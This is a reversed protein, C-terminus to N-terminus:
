AAGLFVEVATEVLQQVHGDDGERTRGLLDTRWREPLGEEGHLAGLAAGVVAAVTDNDWTDNVARVLAEEPRNGYVALIHLASPVTELLYAGSRREELNGLAQVGGTLPSLTDREVLQCLTGQFTGHPSQLRYVTGTEVPGAYRLFTEPWWSPSPTPGALCEVLLGVFGVSAAVAAEDRHTIVTAAVTDIWLSSGLDRLHPLLVPAIRMLAGNGASPRGAQWWPLGENRYALLFGTVTKGIGFIRDGAFRAAVDAADLRGHEVLSELTWFALQTDDSPLGVSRMDAWWNPLYHRIEGHRARRASASRGESTNGLADGIALGLLM